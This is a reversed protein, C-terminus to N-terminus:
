WDSCIRGHNATMLLVFHLFRGKHSQNPRFPENPQAKKPPKVGIKSTGVRIVPRFVAHHAALDVLTM